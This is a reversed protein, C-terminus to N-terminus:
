WPTIAYTQVAVFACHLTERFGFNEVAHCAFRIYWIDGLDSFLNRFHPCFNINSRFDRLAKVEGIKVFSVVKARIPFCMFPVFTFHTSKWSIWAQQLSHVHRIYYFDPLRTLSGKRTEVCHKRRFVVWRPRFMYSYYVGFSPQTSLKQKCILWAFVCRFTQRLFSDSESDSVIWMLRESESRLSSRCSTPIESKERLVRYLSSRVCFILSGFLSAADDPFDKGVNRFCHWERFRWSINAWRCLTVNRSSRFLFPVSKCLRFFYVWCWSLCVSLLRSESTQLCWWFVARVCARM